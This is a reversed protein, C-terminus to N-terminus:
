TELFNISEQDPLTAVSWSLDGLTNDITITLSDSGIRAVDRRVFFYFFGDDDTTTSQIAPYILEGTDQGFNDDDAIAMTVSVDAEPNGQLDEIIGYVTILNTFTPTPPNVAILEAAISSDSGQVRIVKYRVVYRSGFAVTTDTYTEHTAYVTAGNSHSRPISGGLGRTCATFTNTSKSGLQIWEKDIQVYSNATFNTGSTLIITTDSATIAGNLTTSYPVYSGDGRDTSNATTVTAFTGSTAEDSQILYDTSVDADLAATWRLVVDPM